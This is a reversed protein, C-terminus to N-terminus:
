HERQDLPIQGYHIISLGYGGGELTSVGLDRFGDGDLDGLDVM